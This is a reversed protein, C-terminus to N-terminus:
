YWKAKGVPWARFLVRGIIFDRPIPGLMRSDYSQTRNDGLVFYEDPGLTLPKMDTTTVSRALYESEDLVMGRPFADNVITVKSQRISVTEGPLGIVRKILYQGPKEPSRFVISEQRKLDRFPVVTFLPQGGVGVETKKYGFENVVLYEGDHFNPVM